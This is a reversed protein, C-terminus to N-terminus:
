ACIKTHIDIKNYGKRTLKEFCVGFQFSTSQYPKVLCSHHWLHLHPQLAPIFLCNLRCTIFLKICLIMDTTVPWMNCNRKKKRKEKKKQSECVTLLTHIVGYAARNCTLFSALSKDTIIEITPLAIKRSTDLQMTQTLLSKSKLLHSIYVSYGKNLLWLYCSVITVTFVFIPLIKFPCPGIHFESLSLLYM